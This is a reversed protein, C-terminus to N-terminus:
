MNCARSLRELVLSGSELCYQDFSIPPYVIEQHLSAFYRRLGRPHGPRRCHGYGGNHRYRRARGAHRRCLPSHCCAEVTSSSSVRAGADIDDTYVFVPVRGQEVIESIPMM